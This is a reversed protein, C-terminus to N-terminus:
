LDRRWISYEERRRALSTPYFKHARYFDKNTPSTNLTSGRGRAGVAHPAGHLHGGRAGHEAGGALPLLGAGHGAMRARRPDRLHLPGPFGGGAPDRRARLRPALFPPATLLRVRRPVQVRDHGDGLDQERHGDPGRLQVADAVHVVRLTEQEVLVPPTQSRSARAASRSHARPRYSRDQLAPM